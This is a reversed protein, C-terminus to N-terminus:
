LLLRSNHDSGKCSRCVYKHSTKSGKILNHYKPGYNKLNHYNMICNDNIQGCNVIVVPKTFNSAVSDIAELVDIGDVVKGFVTRYTKRLSIQFCKSGETFFLNGPGTHRGVYFEKEFPEGCCADCGGLLYRNGHVKDIKSGRYHLPEGNKGIGNEGTCLVRFKEAAKPTADAFLEMVIRGAHEGGIELDFFVRPNRDNMVDFFVKPNAM